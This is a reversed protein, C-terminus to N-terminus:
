FARSSIGWSVLTKAIIDRKGIIRGWQAMVSRAKLLSLDGHRTFAGFTPIPQKKHWTPESINARGNNMNSQGTSCYVFVIAFRRKIFTVRSRRPSHLSSFWRKMPSSPENTSITKYPLCCYRHPLTGARYRKLLIFSYLKGFLVKHSGCGAPQAWHFPREKWVNTKHALGLNQTTGTRLLSWM